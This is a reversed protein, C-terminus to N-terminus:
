FKLSEIIATLTTNGAFSKIADTNEELHTRLKIQADRRDVAETEFDMKEFGPTLSLQGAYVSDNMATRIDSGNHFFVFKPM